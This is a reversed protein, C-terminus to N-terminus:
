KEARSQSRWDVLRSDAMDAPKGCGWGTWIGWAKVPKRFGAGPHGIGAQDEMAAVFGPSGVAVSSAKMSENVYSGGAEWQSQSTQPGRDPDSRPGGRHALGPVLQPLPRTLGQTLVKRNSVHQDQKNAPRASPPQSSSSHEGASPFFSSGNTATTLCSSKMTPDAQWRNARNGVEPRDAQPRHLMALVGRRRRRM